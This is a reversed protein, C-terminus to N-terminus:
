HKGTKIAKRIATFEQIAQPSPQGDQYVELNLIPVIKRAAAKQLLGIMQENTLKPAPIETNPQIHGWDAGENTTTIAAQLGSQPGGTFKGSGGIPVYGDGAITQETLEGEGCFYDQWDTAKPWIWSNYCIARASYGAKAAATMKEWPAQLPYYVATADDFWYGALKNGYRLGIEQVIAEWNNFYATKDPERYGTRVWWDKDGHGAHYYLMLKVGRANLADALDAILDRQTTRGPLIRDIAHIPAPFYYDAWSTSFVVFGAGTAAITDAFSNVDFTQVAEAYPLKPGTRPQSAASWTIMLGYKSDAMWATSARAKIARAQMARKAAPAQLEVSLLALNFSDVGPRAKARLTVQSTGQPLTLTGSLEERTWQNSPATQRFPVSADLKDLASAIEIEVPAHAAQNCDIVMKGCNVINISVAYKGAKPARVTWVFSDDNGTWNDVWYKKVPEPWRVKLSGHLSAAVAMLVNPQEPDLPLLSTTAPQDSPTTQSSGIRTAAAISVAGISAAAAAIALLYSPKLISGRQRNLSENAPLQIKQRTKPKNKQKQVMAAVKALM